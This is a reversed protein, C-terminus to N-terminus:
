ADEGSDVSFQLREAIINLSVVHATLVKKCMEIRFENESIEGKRFRKCLSEISKM